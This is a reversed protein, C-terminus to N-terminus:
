KCIHSHGLHIFVKTILKNQVYGNREISDHKTTLDDLMIRPKPRDILSSTVNYLRENAAGMRLIIGSHTHYYCIHIM